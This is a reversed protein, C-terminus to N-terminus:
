SFISRNIKRTHFCVLYRVYRNPHKLLTIYGIYPSMYYTIPKGNPLTTIAKLVSRTSGTVRSVASKVASSM